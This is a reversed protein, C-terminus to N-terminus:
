LSVRENLKSVRELVREIARRKRRLEMELPTMADEPAGPQNSSSELEPAEPLLVIELRKELTHLEEHIAGIIADIQGFQIDLPGRRDSKAAAMEISIHDANNTEAPRPQAWQNGGAM